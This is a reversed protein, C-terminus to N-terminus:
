KMYLGALKMETDFSITYTVSKNDYLVIIECVALVEGKSKVEYYTNNIIKQYEGLDGLNQIASNLQAVTLSKRMTNNSIKSIQKYNNENIYKIVETVKNDLSNENFITSDSIPKTKPTIYNFLFTIILVISVIGIVIGIILDSKSKKCTYDFNENLEKAFDKPNGLRNKIENWNEGNELALNIDTEIDKKIRKKNLKSCNLNNIVENIYKKKNM